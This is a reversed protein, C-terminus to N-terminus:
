QALKKFNMGLGPRSLVAGIRQLLNLAYESRLQTVVSADAWSLSLDEQTKIISGIHLKNTDHFKGQNRAYMQGWDPNQSIGDKHISFACVAEDINLFLFINKTANKLAQSDSAHHLRVAVFPLTDSGVIDNGQGPVMDCAPSLCIWYQPDGGAGDGMKFVHGTTLHARDIPKTSSFCNFRKLAEQSGIDSKNIGCGALVDDRGLATFHEHLCNAYGDLALRLRDGLAEWHRNITNHTVAKPDIPDPNLFENLWEAQMYRDGLIEAEASLGRKEIEARMRTLLLRHPSPFSAKIAELLKSEFQQPKHDKSLVTVFLKETNIWNIGSTNGVMVNGLKTSSFQNELEGQKKILLWIVLQKPQIVLGKPKGKLIELIMQGAPLSFLAQYNGPYKSRLELYTDASIEAELKSTIEEDYEEWQALATKISLSDEESLVLSPDTCTLSLAIERIVKDIAGAYGKTHVIVLNFHDGSALARLIAIAVDGGGDDGQLHYDLVLLDSHHLHAAATLEVEPTVDKADHVDILWSRKKDRAFALIERVSPINEQKKASWNKMEGAEKDTLSDLTPYEDDVVIVTRIPDIFAEWILRDHIDPEAVANNM